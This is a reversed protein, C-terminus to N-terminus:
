DLPQVEGALAQAAAWFRRVAMRDDGCVRAVGVETMGPHDVVPRFVFDSIGVLQEAEYGLMLLRERVAHHMIALRGEAVEHPVVGAAIFPEWQNAFSIPNERQTPVAMAVGKLDALKLSERKALPAEAPILLGPRSRHIAVYELDPANEFPTTLAVDLRRAQLGQILKPTFAAKISTQAQPFRRKFDAFLRDREPLWFYSPSVGVRLDNHLESYIMRACKNIRDNVDVLSSAETLFRAGENTLTVKRTTREFLSFGLQDELQRIQRSLWAQDVGLREAARTFSMEEAVAVFRLIRELSNELM